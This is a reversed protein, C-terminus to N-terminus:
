DAVVAKIYEELCKITEDDLRADPARPMRSIAEKGDKCKPKEDKLLRLFLSDDPNSKDIVKEGICVSRSDVDFFNPAWSKTSSYRYNGFINNGHCSAGACSKAIVDKEIEGVTSGKSCNKVERSQIGGGGGKGGGGGSGGSGGGGGSGGSGGGGNGGDDSSGGEDGGCAALGAAGGLVIAMASVKFWFAPSNSSM